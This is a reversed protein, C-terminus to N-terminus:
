GQLQGYVRHALDLLAPRDLEGILAWGLAGDLWYFAGLNGDSEYRFATVRGDPDPAVYLTLRRGGADEYMLQAAPGGAASPLLRGGVLTFGATSLDPAHLAHGLRKSLWTVLHAEEAAAVEVPHRVEVAYVRHAAFASDTLGAATAADHPDLRDRALWGGAAGLALMLLSAAIAPLRRRRRDALIARPRLRPPVPEAATAGFLSDVAANQRRWAAVRRAQEPNGALWAEVATRREPALRGDVLAHLEDDGVEVPPRRDDPRPPPTM